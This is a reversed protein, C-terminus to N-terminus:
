LEIFDKLEGRLSSTMDSSVSLLLRGRGLQSILQNLGILYKRATDFDGVNEELADVYVVSSQSGKIFHSVIYRLLQYMERKRLDINMDKNTGTSLKIVRSYKMDYKNMLIDENMGTFLLGPTTDDVVETFIEYGYYSDEVLFTKGYTIDQKKSAEGKSAVPDVLFMGYKVVGVGLLLTAIIFSMHTIDVPFPNMNMLQVINALFPLFLSFFFLLANKRELSNKTEIVRYIILILATLILIYNYPTFFYHFYITRQSYYIGNNGIGWFSHNVPIGILLGLFVLLASSGSLSYIIIHLWRELKHDLYGFMSVTLHLTVAGSFAVFIFAGEDVWVVISGPSYSNQPNLQVFIVALSSMIGWMGMVSSMYFFASSVRNQGKARVYAGLAILITSTAIVPVAYVAYNPAM